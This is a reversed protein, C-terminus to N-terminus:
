KDKVIIATNTVNVTFMHLQYHRVAYNTKHEYGASVANLDELSELSELSEYKHKVPKVSSQRVQHFSRMQELDIQHM